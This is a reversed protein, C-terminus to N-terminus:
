ASMAGSGDGPLLPNETAQKAGRGGPSAPTLANALFVCCLILVAGIVARAVSGAGGNSATLLMSTTWLSTMRTSRPTQLHRAPRQHRQQPRALPAPFDVVSFAIEPRNFVSSPSTVRPSTINSPARM